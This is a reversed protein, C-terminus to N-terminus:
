AVVCPCALQGVLTLTLLAHSRSSHENMGTKKTVRRSSGAAVCALLTDVSDVRQETAGSAVARGSGAGDERVVLAVRGGSPALLDYM